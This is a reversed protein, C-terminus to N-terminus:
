SIFPPARQSYAKPLPKSPTRVQLGSFVEIQRSLQPIDFKAVPIGKIGHAQNLCLQCNIETDHVTAHVVLTLQGILLVLALLIVRNRLANKM